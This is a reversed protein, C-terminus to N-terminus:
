KRWLTPSMLWLDPSNPMSIKLHEDGIAQLVEKTQNIWRPDCTIESCVALCKEADEKELFLAVVYSTQGGWWMTPVKTLDREWSTNPSFWGHGEPTFMRLQKGVSLMQGNKLSTGAVISSDSGPRLALKVVLPAGSEHECDVEYLSTFTVAFFKKLM